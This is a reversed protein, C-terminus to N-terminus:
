IYEQPVIAKNVSVIKNMEKKFFLSFFIKFHKEVKSSFIKEAIAIDETDAIYEYVFMKGNKNFKTLHFFLKNKKNLKIIEESVSSKYIGRREESIKISSFDVKVIKDYSDNRYSKVYMRLCIM